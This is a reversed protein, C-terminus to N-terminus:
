NLSLKNAKQKRCSDAQMSWLPSQNKPWRPDMKEEEPVQNGEPFGRKGMGLSSTNVDGQGWGWQRAYLVLRTLSLM